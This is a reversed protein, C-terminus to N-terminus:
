LANIEAIPLSRIIMQMSAKGCCIWRDTFKEPIHEKMYKQMVEQWHADNEFPEGVDSMNKDGIFGLYVLVVPVGLSAIKWSFAVRNALQYHTDMSLSAGLAQNVGNIAQCIQKRNDKNKAGCFDNENLEKVHAKAEVIVLGKRGNCTSILDWNPTNAGRKCVLWWDHLDKAINPLEQYFWGIRAENPECYGKPMWTDSSQITVGTSNIIQSLREAFNPNEVLRLIHKRSGRICM